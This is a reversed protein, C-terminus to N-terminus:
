WLVQMEQFFGLQSDYYKCLGQRAWEESQKRKREAEEDAKKLQEVTLGTKLSRLQMDKADFGYWLNKIVLSQKALGLGYKEADGNIQEAEVVLEKIIDFSEQDHNNEYQHCANL